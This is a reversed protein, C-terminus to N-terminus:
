WFTLFVLVPALIRNSYISSEMLRGLHWTRYYSTLAFVSVVILACSIIVTTSSILWILIYAKLWFVIFPPIGSILLWCKTILVGQTLYSHIIKILGLFRILLILLIRYSMWYFIVFRKRMLLSFIIWVRHVISSFLLTFFLTRRALLFGGSLVVRVVVISFSIRSLLIDGLFFIPLLKHITIIFGFVSKTLVRSIRVFWIQFPPLGLKLIFVTILVFPTHIVRIIGLLLFYRQIILYNLTSAGSLLIVFIWSIVELLLLILLISICGLSLFMFMMYSCVVLIIKLRAEGLMFEFSYFCDCWM